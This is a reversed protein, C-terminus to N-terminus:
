DTQEVSIRQMMREGSADVIQLLYSGAPVSLTMGAQGAADFQLNERIVVRGFMDSVLVHVVGQHAGWRLNIRDRVPNPYVSIGSSLTQEEVSLGRVSVCPLTDRCAGKTVIATYDGDSFLYYGPGAGDSGVSSYDSCYVWEYSEMHPSVMLM